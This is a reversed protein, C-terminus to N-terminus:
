KEQEKKNEKCITELYISIKRKCEKRWWERWGLLGHCSSPFSSTNSAMTTARWISFPRMIARPLQNRPKTTMWPKPWQYFRMSKTRWWQDSSATPSFPFSHLRRADGSHHVCNHVHTVHHGSNPRCHKCSIFSTSLKAPSPMTCHHALLFFLIPIRPFYLKKINEETNEM